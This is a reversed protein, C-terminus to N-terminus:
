FRRSKFTFPDYTLHKFHPSTRGIYNLEAAIQADLVDLGADKATELRSKFANYDAELDAARCPSYLSCGSHDGADHGHKKFLRMASQM